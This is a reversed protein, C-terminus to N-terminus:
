TRLGQMLDRLARYRLLRVGCSRLHRQLEPSRFVEYEAVRSRWDPTVARLEPSDVAPHMLLHTLGPRL